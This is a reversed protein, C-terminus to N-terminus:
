DGEVVNKNLVEVLEDYTKPPYVKTLDVPTAFEVGAAAVEEIISTRTPIPTVVYETDFRGKGTRKIRFNIGWNLNSLDGWDGAPDNDYEMLQKFVMVGSKLVFIGDKLGKGDPNNFVYANYLYAPKSYLKKAAKINSEGLEAYLRKGEECIPCDSDDISKPCTYTQFKGDPRMGHEKYSRFWSPAGEVPPLIRCHTVGSKFYLVTGDSSDTRIKQSEAYADRQFDPDVEGFGAPLENSM